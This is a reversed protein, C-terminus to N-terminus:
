RGSWVRVSHRVAQFLDLSCERGIRYLTLESGAAHCGDIEGVVRFVIAFDRYFNKVGLESRHEASVPKELLDSNGCIELVGMDQTEDIRSDNTFVCALQSASRVVHHRIHFAFRHSLSEVALLLKGNGIRQSNSRFDRTCQVVRVSLADYVPVDLRLINEQVVSTRDDGVESDCQRDCLSTASSHSLGPERETRRAVHTGLLGHSLSRDRRAAVDIRQTGDSIFHEGTLRREGSWRHLGDHRSDHRLLGSRERGLASVYRQIDFRRDCAREFFDGRVTECRRM